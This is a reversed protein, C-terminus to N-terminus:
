LKTAVLAFSPGNPHDPQEFNIEIKEFGFHRLCRLIDERSMWHSFPQNGGCFSASNLATGYSHKYLVHQFGDHQSEMGAAFRNGYKKPIIEADYYHTWLLVQNTAKAILSILEAPNKMHYLVGSAVCIDFPVANMKLFEVFDGYLFNSRQLKIILCKLYARSNAEIALISAAEAKEIMYTHGAELPGLELVTKNAFGNIQSIWWHVRDDAFLGIPGAKLSSDPLLSSWEDKFIDLANQPSPSNTTYQDLISM